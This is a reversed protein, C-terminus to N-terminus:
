YLPLTTIQNYTGGTIYCSLISCVKLFLLTINATNSNTTVRWHGLKLYWCFCILLTLVNGNICLLAAKFHLMYNRVKAIQGMDTADQCWLLTSTLLKHLHLEQSVSKYPAGPAYTLKEHYHYIQCLFMYIRSTLM